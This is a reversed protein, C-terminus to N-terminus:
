SIFFDCNKVLPRHIDTYSASYRVVLIKRCYLAYPILLRKRILILQKSPRDLENPAAGEDLSNFIPSAPPFFVMFVLTFLSVMGMQVDM